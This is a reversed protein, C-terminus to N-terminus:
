CSWPQRGRPAAPCTFSPRSCSRTRGPRSCCCDSCCRPGASSVSRSRSGRRASGTVNRGAPEPWCTSRATLAEWGFLATFADTATMIVAVAGLALAYGAALMRTAAADQRAAWSAFAVSVPVAAGFAMALFLGSLQDAALGPAPGTGIPDGLWGAIDLRVTRGALAFGGAAALCAAGPRAPSIRRVARGAQGPSSSVRWAALALLIFGAALLASM